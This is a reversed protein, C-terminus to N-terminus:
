RDRTLQYRIDNLDDQLAEADDDSVTKLFDTTDGVDDILAENQEQQYKEKARQEASKGILPLTYRNLLQYDWKEFYEEKLHAPASEPDLEEVSKMYSMRMLPSSFEEVNYEELDVTEIGTEEEYYADSRGPRDEFEPDKLPTTNEELKVPDEAKEESIGEEFVYNSEFFDSVTSESFEGATDKEQAQLALPISILCLFQKLMRINHPKCKHFRLLPYTELFSLSKEEKGSFNSL